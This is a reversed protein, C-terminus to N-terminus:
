NYCYVYAAGTCLALAAINGTIGALVGVVMFEGCCNNTGVGFCKAAGRASDSATIAATGATKAPTANATSFGMVILLSFVVILGALTRM